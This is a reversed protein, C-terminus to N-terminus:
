ISISFPDNESGSGGVIKVAPKLNVVPRIGLSTKTANPFSSNDNTLVGNNILYVKEYGENGGRTITYYTSSPMSLYNSQSCAAYNSSSCNSDNGSAEIYENATILGVYAKENTECENGLTGTCWTGNTLYMSDKLNNYYNNNLYKKLSSNAWYGGGYDDWARSTLIDKKIIKVSDDSNIKIIRWIEGNFYIYNDPNLGNFANSRLQTGKNERIWGAIGTKFTESSYEYVYQNKDYRIIITGSLNNGSQRPDIVNDNTIYGGQLLSSISLSMTGGEEPLDEAHDIGWEKAAKILLEIQDKYAKEKSNKIVSNIAPYVVLAILALLTVVGILEILTFGKKNNM